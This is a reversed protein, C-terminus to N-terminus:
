GKIEVFSLDQDIYEYQILRVKKWKCSVSPRFGKTFYRVCINDKSDLINQSFGAAVIYAEIMSYDGHAYEGQIWDVYKMLQEIADKEAVDKKIEIVMYKCITDYDEIYRYGFIDMKDMYDIAKFPSAVVQHSIYDWRGFISDTKTSLLECIAAEIAMEHQIINNINSYCNSLLKYKSMRYARSANQTIYDHREQFYDFTNEGSYLNKENRKLIIDILAKDEEDDIKIFSVKWMARLMRFRDPNSSLADDMDIGKLFFYPSPKFTCFCRNNVDASPPLLPNREKYEKSSYDKPEDADIYNWSKCDENIEVIEGIGYIKRDNFFYIHNGPKMSFYDAFTGEQARTWKGNKPTKLNTSYVGDEICQKVNEMDSMNMVYGAM